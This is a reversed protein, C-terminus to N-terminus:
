TRNRCLIPQPYLPRQLPIEKQELRHYPFICYISFKHYLYCIFVRKEELFPRAIKLGGIEFPFIGPFLVFEEASFLCKHPSLRHFEPIRYGRRFYEINVIRHDALHISALDFIVNFTFPLFNSVFYHPIYIKLLVPLIETQAFLQKIWFEIPLCKYLRRWVVSYPANPQRLIIRRYIILTIPFAPVQEALSYGLDPSNKRSVLSPDHIKLFTAKAHFLRRLARFAKRLRM